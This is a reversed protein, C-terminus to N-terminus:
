IAIKRLTLNVCDLFRFQNYRTVDSKVELKLRPYYSAGFRFGLNQPFCMGPLGVAWVGVVEDCNRDAQAMGCLAPHSPLPADATSISM